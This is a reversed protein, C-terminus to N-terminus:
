TGAAHRAAETGNSVGLEALIRSVHHGAGPSM